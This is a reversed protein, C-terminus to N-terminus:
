LQSAQAALKLSGTLELVVDGSRNTRSNKKWLDLIRIYRPITSLNIVSNSLLTKVESFAPFFNISM